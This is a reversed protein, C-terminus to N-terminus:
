LKFKNNIEDINQYWNKQRKYDTLMIQIQYKKQDIAYQILEDINKKTIFKESDLIKRLIEPEDMSILYKLIKRGQKKIYASVGEEDLGLAYMQLILNYKVERNIRLAYDKQLVLQKIESFSVGNRREPEYLMKDDVLMLPAHKLNKCNYFANEGIGTMRVSKLGSCDEFAYNGISTVSDPIMVEKDNGHYKILKGNKIEFDQNM